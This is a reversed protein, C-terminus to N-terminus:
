ELVGIDSVAREEVFSDRHTGIVRFIDHLEIVVNIVPTQGNTVIGSSSKKIGNSVHHARLFHYSM